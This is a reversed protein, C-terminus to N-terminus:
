DKSKMHLNPWVAFAALLGILGGQGAAGMRRRKIAHRAERITVAFAERERQRM